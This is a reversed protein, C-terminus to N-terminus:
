QAITNLGDQSVKGGHIRYTRPHVVIFAPEVSRLPSFGIGPRQGWHRKSDAPMSPISGCQDVLNAQPSLWAEGASGPVPATARHSVNVIIAMTFPSFTSTSPKALYAGYTDPTPGDGHTRWPAPIVRLKGRPEGCQLFPHFGLLRLMFSCNLAEALLHRFAVSPMQEPYGHHETNGCSEEPYQDSELRRGPAGDNRRRQGRRTNRIREGHQLRYTQAVYRAAAANPQQANRAPGPWYQRSSLLVSRRRTIRPPNREAYEGVTRAIPDCVRLLRRM